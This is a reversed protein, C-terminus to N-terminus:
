YQVNPREWMGEIEKEMEPWDKVPTDGSALRALAQQKRRQELDIIVAKRLAQRIIVSVSQKTEAAYDTLLDYEQETLVVQARRGRAQAM